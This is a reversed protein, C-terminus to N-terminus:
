SKTKLVCFVVLLLSKHYNKHMYNRLLAPNLFMFKLSIEIQTENSSESVIACFLLVILTIKKIM